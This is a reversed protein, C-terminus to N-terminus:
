HGVAWPEDIHISRRTCWVLFLLLLRPLLGLVFGSRGWSSPGRELCRDYRRARSLSNRGNLVGTTGEREASRTEATRSLQADESRPARSWGPRSYHLKPERSLGGATWSVQAGGSRQARLWSARPNLSKSQVRVRGVFRSAASM